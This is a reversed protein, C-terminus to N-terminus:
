PALYPALAPVNRLVWYAVVVVLLANPVWPPSIYRRPRGTVTRHLWALWYGVLVPMMVVALPNMSWAGALDLNWVDHVARMSGCGPCYLGTLALSPCSPYIGPTHPSFTGLVSAGGLAGAAVVVPGLVAARRRTRARPRVGADPRGADTGVHATM